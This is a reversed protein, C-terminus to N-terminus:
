KCRKKYFRCQKQVHMNNITNSNHVRMKMKTTTMQIARTAPGFVFCFMRCARTATVFVRVVFNIKDIHKGFKLHQCMRKRGDNWVYIKRKVSKLRCLNGFRLGFKYIESERSPRRSSLNKWFFACWIKRSCMLFAMFMPIESTTHM